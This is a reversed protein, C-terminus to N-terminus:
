RLCRALVSVRKSIFSYRAPSRALLLKPNEIYTRIAEAFDDVPQSVMYASIPQEIWKPNNWNKQTIRLSVAPTKKAALDAAVKANGIDYLYGGHWGVTSMYDRLMNPDPVPSTGCLNVATEALGHGLEHWVVRKVGQEKNIYEVPAGPASGTGEVTLIPAGPYSGGSNSRAFPLGLRASSTAVSYIILEGNGYAAGVQSDAVATGNQNEYHIQYFVIENVRPIGSFVSAFKDFADLIYRYVESSGGPDWSQWKSKPIQVGVEANQDAYTGTKFNKVGYKTRMRREFESRSMPGTSINVATTGTGQSSGTQTTSQQPSRFITDGTDSQQITHTLEHAFLKREDEINQTDSGSGLVIDNGITFATANLCEALERARRDEHIRVRIFDRNFAPEFYNKESRFFSRGRGKLHEVGAEIGAPVQITKGTVAGARLQVRAPSKMCQNNSESVKTVQEATKEAERECNDHPSGLKLKHQKSMDQSLDMFGPQLGSSIFLQPAVKNNFLEAKNYDDNHKHKFQMM